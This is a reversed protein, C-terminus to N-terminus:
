AAAREDGLPAQNHAAQEACAAVAHAGRQDRRGREVREALREGGRSNRRIEDGLVDDLRDHAHLEM